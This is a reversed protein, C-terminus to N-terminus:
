YPGFKSLLPWDTDWHQLVDIVEPSRHEPKSFWDLLFAREEATSKYVENLIRAVKNVNRQFQTVPLTYTAPCQTQLWRVVRAQPRNKISELWDEADKIEALLLSRVIDLRGSPEYDRAADVCSLAKKICDLQNTVAALDKKDKELEQAGIELMRSVRPKKAQALFQPAYSLPRKEAM